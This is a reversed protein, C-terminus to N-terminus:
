YTISKFQLLRQNLGMVNALLQNVQIQVLDYTM